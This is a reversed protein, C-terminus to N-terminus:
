FEVSASLKFTRGPATQLELPNAAATSAPSPVKTYSTGGVLNAFYRKDFINDVGGRVTIASTPKWSLYADFVSYGGQKFLTPSSARTAGGAFTGIM